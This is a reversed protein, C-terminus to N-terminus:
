ASRRGFPRMDIRISGLQWMVGAADSEVRLVAQRGRVRLYIQGTYEEPTVSATRIVSDSAIGGASLPNNYGSGSNKMAKLTFTVTPSGATSGQFTLDPLVMHTLMFQDGDDLDFPASEIFSPVGIAPSGTADDIGKEHQVLVQDYTAAYPYKRINSDLWATRPIDGFYWTNDAYNYIVHRDIEESGASCYFWWVENFAENTGACTQPQQDRNFDDFIYRRVDCPLPTVTGDYRYFADQGMWYAVGNAYAVANQGVISINDGVLQFAWVDPAGVYQMSFVASDTWILIEQRAQVYAVIESGVSLRYDGAQTTASPTWNVADEQDSWRVLMPDILSSGIPNTAFAIVFRQQPAVGVMFAAVPVDSAGGDDKLLTGRASVGVSADWYGLPGNRPCFVLDEGFNSQTWTGLNGTTVSGDGWPGSGYAGAGFGTIPISIPSGVNVQYAATVSGGGSATSTAPTAAEITYTNDDVRTLQYEGNLTLGGVASAGSFTVFDGTRAGHGVDTVTVTEDTDVTNFPDTLNATERVPTIDFYDGGREIYMKLNTGAAMLNQGGLTAWNHLSRCIGLYQNASVREWGGIKEPFGRRFRINRGAYWGGEASYATVETIIGPRFPIKRVPM